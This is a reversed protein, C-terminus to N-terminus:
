IPKNYLEKIGILSGYLISTTWLVYFPIFKIKKHYVSIIVGYGLILFPSFLPSITKNKAIFRATGRGYWIRQKIFGARSSRHYHYGIAKSVAFTHGDKRARYFFDADEVGADKFYDDFKYHLVLDRPFLSIITDAHIYKGPKNYRIRRHFDEAEEWYTKHERPDILQAQVGSVHFQELDALMQEVTGTNSLEADSDLYLVYIGTAKEAGLQRAYGLGRGEDFYITDTYKRAITITRDTSGGDIVLIESILPVMLSKLANEITAEGNKVCIVASITKDM